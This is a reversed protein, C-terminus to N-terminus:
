EARGRPSRCRGRSHRFTIGRVVLRRVRGCGGWGVGRWLWDYL